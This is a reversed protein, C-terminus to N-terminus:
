LRSVVFAIINRAIVIVFLGVLAYVISNRAERVKNPDGEALAFRIGSITIIIVAAVGSLVALIDAAKKIIGNQGYFSNAGRPDETAQLSKCYTSTAAVPDACQQDVYSAASASASFLLSVLCTFGAVVALVKQVSAAYASM